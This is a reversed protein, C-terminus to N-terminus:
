VEGAALWDAFDTPDDFVHRDTSPTPGFVAEVFWRGAMDDHMESLQSLVAILRGNRLVLVARDDTNGTDLMIEQFSVSM